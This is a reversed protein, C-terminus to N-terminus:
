DGNCRKGKRSLRFDRDRLSPACGCYDQRYLGHERCLEVSRRFGDKKKFDELLFEVGILRQLESGIEHIMSANKHPSITLTTCFAEFGNRSAYEAVVQLRLEICNRCRRGGEPEDQLGATREEWTEPDFPGEILKVGTERFFSQVESLRRDYEERPYINPNYFFATIEFEGSLRELPATACPACCIHLLLKRKSM